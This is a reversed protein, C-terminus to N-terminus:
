DSAEGAREEQTVGVAVRQGPGASRADPELGGTAAMAALMGLLLQFEFRVALDHGLAAFGVVSASVLLATGVPNRARLGIWIWSLVISALVLLGLPGLEALVQIYSNHSAARNPFFLPLGNLGVGMPHQLWVELSRAAFGAHAQTTGTAATKVKYLFMIEAGYKLWISTSIAALGLVSLLALVRTRTRGLGFLGLLVFVPLGVSFATLSVTGALSLVVGVLLPAMLWISRERARLWIVPLSAAMIVGHLNPESTFGTLRIAAGGGPVGIRDDLISAVLRAGQPLRKGIELDIDLGVLVNAIIQVASYCVMLGVGLLYLDLLRRREAGDLQAVVAMGVIVGLVTHAASLYGKLFQEPAAPQGNSLAGLLSLSIAGFLAAQLATLWRVERSRPGSRWRYFLPLLLLWLVYPFYHYEVRIGFRLYWKSLNALILVIATLLLVFRRM